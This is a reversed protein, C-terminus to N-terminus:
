EKATEGAASPDPSTSTATNTSKGGQPAFDREIHLPCRPPETSPVSPRGCLVRGTGKPATCPVPEPDVATM